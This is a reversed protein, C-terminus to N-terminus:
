QAVFNIENIDDVNSKADCKKLIVVNGMDEVELTAVIAVPSAVILKHLPAEPPLSGNDHGFVSSLPPVIFPMPIKTKELMKSNISPIFWKVNAYKLNFCKTIDSM